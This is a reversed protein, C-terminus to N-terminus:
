PAAMRTTAICKFSSRTTCSTRSPYGKNMAKASLELWERHETTEPDFKSGMAQEFEAIKEAKFRRLRSELLMLAFFPMMYSPFDSEKIGAGRLTDATKWITETYSLFAEGIKQAM